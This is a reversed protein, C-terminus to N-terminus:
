AAGEERLHRVFWARALGIVTDLAGAEEFLHGARPIIELRKECHLRELAARNLDLVVRDDGGVILLTPASVESCRRAQWTRADAARSWPASRRTCGPSGRGAGRRRRHQRRFLRAGTAADRGARAAMLDCRASPERASRYRLRQQSEGGRRCCCISCCRRWAPRVCHRPWRTTARASGVAAAAMPSRSSARRRRLCAWSGKWGSRHSGCRASRTRCDQRQRIRERRWSRM